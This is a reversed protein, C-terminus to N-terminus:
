RQYISQFLAETAASPRIGLQVSLAERCRRYVNAADAPRGQALRCQM